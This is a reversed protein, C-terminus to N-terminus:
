PAANRALNINRYECNLEYKCVLHQTLMDQQLLLSKNSLTRRVGLWQEM